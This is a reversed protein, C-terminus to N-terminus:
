ADAHDERLVSIAFLERLADRGTATIELARSDGLRRVWRREVAHRCFAAGIKGAIHVRRESWDLCPRVLPRSSPALGIGVRSFFELARGDMLAALMAVRAPEGLHAAVEAIQHTTAMARSSILKAAPVIRGCGFCEGLAGRCM